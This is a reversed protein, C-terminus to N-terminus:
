TWGGTQKDTQGCADARIRSFMKASIQYRPCKTFIRDRFELNLEFRAFIDPVKRTSLTSRQQWYYLISM